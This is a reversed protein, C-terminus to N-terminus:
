DALCQGDSGLGIIRIRSVCVVSWNNTRSLVKNVGSPGTVCINSMLTGETWWMISTKLRNLASLVFRSYGKDKCGKNNVSVGSLIWVMREFPDQMGKIAIASCSLMSLGSKSLRCPGGLSQANFTDPPPLGHSDPHPLPAELGAWWEVFTKKRFPRSHSHGSDWSSKVFHSSHNVWALTLNLVKKM